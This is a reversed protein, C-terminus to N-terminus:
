SVPKWLLGLEDAYACAEEMEGHSPRRNIEVYDETNPVLYTPRYQGMINVLVRPINKSIWELIPKTCCEIHGPMVLHRVIMEGGGRDHAMQHNRSIVEWYNPVRSYKLACKNNHWKMDPLWFDVVDLLLETSENSMYFNSNWLQCINAGLHKMSELVNHLNPTPSGGVWNANRAGERKLDSVIKALQFPTVVQGNDPDGSIDFNQCFVCPGFNCSAFFVTGSPVLVSEEGMHLFFSSVLSERGLKCFGKEGKLRNVSCRRECLHCNEVIRKALEIKLDLYNDSSTAEIEKPNVKGQDLDSMMRNFAESAIQHEKWLDEESSNLRVHVPIMKAVKFKPLFVEKLIGYYRSLRSRVSKDNWVEVSDPRVIRWM